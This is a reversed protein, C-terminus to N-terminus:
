SVGEKLNPAVRKEYIAQLGEGVAPVPDDIMEWAYAMAIAMNMSRSVPKAPSTVLATGIHQNAKGMLYSYKDVGPKSTKIREISLICDESGALISACCMIILQAVEKRLDTDRQNARNFGDDLDPMRTLADSVEGLEQDAFWIAKTQVPLKFYEGWQTYFNNVSMWVALMLNSREAM